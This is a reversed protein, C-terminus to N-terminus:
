RDSVSGRERKTIQVRQARRENLVAKGAVLTLGFCLFAMATQVSAAVPREVTAGFLLHAFDVVGPISGVFGLLAVLLVGGLAPLRWREQGVAVALPVLAIGFFLPILATISTTGTGFYGWIGLLTLGIGSVLPVKANM